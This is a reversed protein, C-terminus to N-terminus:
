WFQHVFKKFWSWCDSLWIKQWIIGSFINWFTFVFGCWVSYHTLSKNNASIVKKTLAGTSCILWGGSELIWISSNYFCESVVCTNHYCGYLGFWTLKWSHQVTPWQVHSVTPIFVNKWVHVRYLTPLILHSMKLLQGTEPAKINHLVCCSISKKSITRNHHQRHLAQLLFSMHISKWTNETFEGIIRETRVVYLM